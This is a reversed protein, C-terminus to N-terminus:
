YTLLLNLLSDKSEEQATVRGTMTALLHLTIPSMGELVDRTPYTWSTWPQRVKALAQGELLAQQQAHQVQAILRPKTVNNPIKAGLIGLWFWLGFVPQAALTPADALAVVQLTPLCQDRFKILARDLGGATQDKYEIHCFRLLRTIRDLPLAEVVMEGRRTSLLDTVCQKLQIGTLDSKGDSTLPDCGFTRATAGAGKPNVQGEFDVRQWFFQDLPQLRDTEAPLLPSPNFDLVGPLPPVLAQSGVLSNECQMDLEALITSVPGLSATPVPLAVTLVERTPAMEQSVIALSPFEDEMNLEEVPQQFTVKPSKKRGPLKANGPTPLVQPATGEQDLDGQSSIQSSVPSIRQAFNVVEAASLVNQGAIGTQASNKAALSASLHRTLMSSKGSTM